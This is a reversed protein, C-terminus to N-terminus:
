VRFAKAQGGLAAQQRASHHHGLHNSYVPLDPPERSDAFLPVVTGTRIHTHATPRSRRAGIPTLAVSRWSWMRACCLSCRQGFVVLCQVPAALRPTLGVLCKVRGLKGGKVGDSRILDCLRGPTAVIIHPRAELQAAQTMSDM